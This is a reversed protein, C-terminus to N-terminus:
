AGAMWHLRDGEAVEPPVANILRRIAARWARDVHSRARMADPFQAVFARIKGYDVRIGMHVYPCNDTGVEDRSIVWNSICKRVAQEEPPMMGPPGSWLIQPPVVLYREDLPSNMFRIRKGGEGAIFANPDFPDYPGMMGNEMPNVPKCGDAANIMLIQM